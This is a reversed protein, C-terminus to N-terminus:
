QAVVWIIGAVLVVNVMVSVALWAAITRLHGTICRNSATLQRVSLLYTQRSVWGNCTADPEPNLPAAIPEDTEIFLDASM